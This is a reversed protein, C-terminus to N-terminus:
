SSTTAFLLHIHICVKLISKLEYYKINRWIYKVDRVMFHEVCINYM